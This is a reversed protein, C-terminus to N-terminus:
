IIYLIHVNPPVYLGCFSWKQVNKATKPRKNGTYRQVIRFTPHYLADQVVIRGTQNTSLFIRAQASFEIKGYKAWFSPVDTYKSRMTIVSRDTPDKEM